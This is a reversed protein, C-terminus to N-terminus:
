AQEAPEATEAARAGSRAPPGIEAAAAEIGARLHFDRELLSMAAGAARQRELPELAVTVAARPALHLLQGHFDRCADGVPLLDPESRFALGAHAAPRRAIQEKADPQQRMPQELALAAVHPEVQRNRWPLG